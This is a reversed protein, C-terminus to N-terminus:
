KGNILIKKSDKGVKILYIGKPLQSLDIRKEQSDIAVTKKEVAILDFVHVTKGVAGTIVISNGRQEIKVSQNDIDSLEIRASAANQMSPVFSFAAVLLLSILIRKPM